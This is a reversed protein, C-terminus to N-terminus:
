IQSLKTVVCICFLIIYVICQNCIHYIYDINSDLPQCECTMHRHTHPPPPDPDMWQHGKCELLMLIKNLMSTPM